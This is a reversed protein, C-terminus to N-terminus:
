VLRGLPIWCAIEKLPCRYRPRVWAVAAVARGAGAAPPRDLVESGAHAPGPRMADRQEVVRYRADLRTADSGSLQLSPERLRRGSGRGSSRRYLSRSAPSTELGATPGPWRTERSRGGKWAADAVSSRGPISSSMRRRISGAPMLYKGDPLMVVEFVTWQYAHCGNSTMRM